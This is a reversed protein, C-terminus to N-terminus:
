GHRSYLRLTEAKDQARSGQWLLEWPTGLLVQYHATSRTLLLACGTGGPQEPPAIKGQYYELMPSVSEGLNYNGICDNRYSSDRVALMMQTMVIRYSKEEDIMPLFLTCTLGWCITAAALWLRAGAFAPNANFRWARLWLGTILFAMGLTFVNVSGSEFPDAPLWRSAAHSVWKLLAADPYLLSIWLLWLAALLLTFSAILGYNWGKLVRRPLCALAQAGLIALGPVIPM